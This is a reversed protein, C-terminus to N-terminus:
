EKKELVNKIHISLFGIMTLDSVETETERSIFKVGFSKKSVVLIKKIINFPLDIFEEEDYVIIKKM